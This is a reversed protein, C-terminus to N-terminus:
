NPVIVYANAVASGFDDYKIWLYGNVGWKSGQTNRVEFAELNEDYGVVVVHFSQDGTPYSDVL